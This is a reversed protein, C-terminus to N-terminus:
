QGIYIKCLGIDTKDVVFFIGHELTTTGHGMNNDLTTTGHQQGMNNDWTM